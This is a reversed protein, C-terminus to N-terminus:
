GDSALSLKSKVLRYLARDWPERINAIQRKLSKPVKAAQAEAIASEMGAEIIENIRAVVLTRRYAAELVDDTPVLRKTGLQQRLKSELWEIFQPSTFANLEVRRGSRLFEREAKTAISDDAFYGNFVCTEDQLQYKQVDSLRLGLDTM